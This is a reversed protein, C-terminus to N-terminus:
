VALLARRVSRNFWSMTLTKITVPALRPMPAGSLGIVVFRVGGRTLSDAFREVWSKDAGSQNQPLSELREIARLYAKSV